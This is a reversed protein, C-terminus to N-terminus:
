DTEFGVRKHSGDCFPAHGTAGCRCLAGGAGRYETLGAVSRLTVPGTFTLPGNHTAGITLNTEEAEAQSLKNKALAGSDKYEAKVHSGDCYPKHESAGCRCLAVRTDRLIVEDDSDMVIVEGSVYLPGDPAVSITNEAPTAEVEGGARKVHLAGTPCRLVANIVEDDSAEAPQIWPKKDTDFVDPLGRVCAAFHICRTQSWTVELTDSTYSRLKDNQADDPM